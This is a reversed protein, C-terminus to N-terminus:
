LHVQTELWFLMSHTLLNLADFYHYVLEAYVYKKQAVAFYSRNHLFSVDRVTERVHLEAVLKNRNWDIMALHGKRGGLLM